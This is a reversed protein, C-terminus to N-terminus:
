GAAPEMPTRKLKTLRLYSGPDGVQLTLLHPLHTSAERARSGRLIRTDVVRIRGCLYVRDRAILPFRSPYTGSWLPRKAQKLSSFLGLGSAWLSGSFDGMVVVPCVLSPSGLLDEGLLRALQWRRREPAPDLRVNFIHIRRGRFDLDGGVCVGDGGLSFERIGRMPYYSLFGNSGSREPGYHGMGLLDSLRGLQGEREGADIDQLAVVDPAGEGIVEAVREASTVGDVGRCRHIHYTMVRITYM